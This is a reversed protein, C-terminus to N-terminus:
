RRPPKGGAARLMSKAGEEQCAEGGLRRANKGTVQRLFLVYVAELKQMIVATM